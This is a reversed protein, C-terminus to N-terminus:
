CVHNEKPFSISAIKMLIFSILSVGFFPILGPILSMLFIVIALGIVMLLSQVPRGIALIFAHKIYGTIKM